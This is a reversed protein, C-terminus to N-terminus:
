SLPRQKLTENLEALLQNTERQVEIAQRTVDIGDRSIAIATTSQDLSQKGQSMARRFHRMLWILLPAVILLTVVSAILEKLQPKEIAFDQVALRFM